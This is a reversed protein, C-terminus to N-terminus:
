NIIHEGSDTRIKDVTVFTAILVSQEGIGRLVPPKSLKCHVGDVSIYKANKILDLYCPDMKITVSTISNFGGETFTLNNIDPSWQVLGEVCKKRTSILVGAGNCVPCRGITFYTPSAPSVKCVGSSKDHVSDYYCNPCDVRRDQIYIMIKRGLGNIFRTMTDRWRRKAKGGVNINRSM